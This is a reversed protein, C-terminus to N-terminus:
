LSEIEKKSLKTVEIIDDISYDLTLLRKAIELTKLKEGEEKGELRATQLQSYSDRLEKLEHEYKFKEHGELNSYFAIEFAEEINEDNFKDNYSKSQLKDLSYLNKLFYLWKDSDSLNDQINKNFKPLEIFIYNIKNSYDKCNSDKLSLKRIYDDDFKFHNFNTIGIFYVPKLKYDWDGKIGMDVIQKSTYFIARDLFFKQDARQLEVIIENGQEDVAFIDFISKKDDKFDGVKELNGLEISKIPSDLQLISNLFSITINKHNENAFIRKFGFDTLPNIFVSM